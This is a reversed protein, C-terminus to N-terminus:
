LGSPIWTKIGMKKLVPLQKEKWEKIAKEDRQKARVEPKQSTFGLSRVIQWTRNHEFKVGTAKKMVDALRSLTWLNTEFGYEEPGKLIAKKFLIRKEETLKSEFGPHGKSKLGKIGQKEWAKHWYNVAAPTVKFRRAIEAQLKKKKFLKAAKLRTKERKKRSLSSTHKM